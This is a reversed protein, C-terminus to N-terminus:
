HTNPGLRKSTQKNPPPRSDSIRPILGCSSRVKRSGSGWISAASWSKGGVRFGLDSQVRAEVIGTFTRSNSGAAKAKFVEVRPSQLRADQIAPKSCGGTMLAVMLWGAFIGITILPRHDIKVFSVEDAGVGVSSQRLRVTNQRESGRQPAPWEQRAKVVLHQELLTNM